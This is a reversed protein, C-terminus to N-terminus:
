FPRRARTARQRSRAAANQRIQAISHTKLTFLDDMETALGLAQVARVFTELTCQGQNEMKRWAGASIGAMKAIEAQRLNQALRQTRLRKALATQIEQHTSLAFTM